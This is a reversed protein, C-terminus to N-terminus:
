DCGVSLGRLILVLDFYNVAGNGDLDGRVSGSQLDALWAAIDFWDIVGNLDVDGVCPRGRVAYHVTLEERSTDVMDLLGDVNMDLLLPVISNSTGVPVRDTERFEGGATPSLIRTVNSDFVVIENWQDGNLDQIRIARATGVSLAAPMGAEFRRGPLSYYIPVGVDSSLGYQGFFALDELGDRDLDGVAVLRDLGLALVGWPLDIRTEAGFLGVWEGYRVVIEGPLFIAVDDLGDGDFDGTGIQVIPTSVGLDGAYQMGAGPVGAYLASEGAGSGIMVVDQAGDGNLDCVDWGRVRFGVDPLTVAPLFAGEGLGIRYTLKVPQDNPNNSIVVLDGVGDADIDAFLYTVGNSVISPDLSSEVYLETDSNDFEFRRLRPQTSDNVLLVPRDPESWPAYITQRASADFDILHRYNTGRFRRGDNEYVWMGGLFLDKLGDGTVDHASAVTANPLGFVVPAEFGATGDAVIGYMICLGRSNSAVADVIGDGDVDEIFAGSYSTSEPVVTRPHVTYGSPDLTAVQSWTTGARGVTVIDQDGDGDFDLVRLTHGGLYMGVTQELSFTGDAGRTVVSVATGGGSQRAVALRNGPGASQGAAMLSGGVLGDVQMSRPYAFVGEGLGEYSVVFDDGSAVIDRDGDGDMDWVAIERTSHPTPLPSKPAHVFDGSETQLLVYLAVADRGYGFCLDDLGDGNLDNACLSSVFGSGLDMLESAAYEGDGTRRYFRLGDSSVFAIVPRSDDGSRLLVGETLPPDLLSLRELSYGPGSPEAALTRSCWAGTFSALGLALAIRINM